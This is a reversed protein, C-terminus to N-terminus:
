PTALLNRYVPNIHPYVVSAPVDVIQDGYVFAAVQYPPFIFRLAIIQGHKNMLPLFRALDTIEATGRNIWDENLSPEQVRLQQRITTRLVEQGNTTPLLKQITLQEQNQPLWIYTKENYSGHAAGNKLSYFSGQVAVIKPTESKVNYRLYCISADTSTEGDFIRDIITNSDNVYDGLKEFNCSSNLFADTEDAIHRALQPYNNIEPAYDAIAHPRIVSELIAAAESQSFASLCLVLLITKIVHFYYYPPNLLLKM